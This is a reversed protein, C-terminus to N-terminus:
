RAEEDIWLGRLPHIDQPHQYFGKVYPQVMSSVVYFYIPMVPLQECFIAEAERVRTPERRGQDSPTEGTDIAREAWGSEAPLWNKM